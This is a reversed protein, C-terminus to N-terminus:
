RRPQRRQVADALLGALAGLGASRGVEFAAVAAVPAGEADTGTGLALSLVVLVVGFTVGALTSTLVPRPVRGLAIGGIWVVAVLGLLLLATPAEGLADAVGTLEALPFLLALAGLGLVVPWSVPEGAGTGSPGAPASRDPM